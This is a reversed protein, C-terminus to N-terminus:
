RLIFEKADVTVDAWTSRAFLAPKSRIATFVKEENPGDFPPYGSLIIYVLVGVSRCASGM